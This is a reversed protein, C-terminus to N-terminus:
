TFLVICHRSRVNVAYCYEHKM